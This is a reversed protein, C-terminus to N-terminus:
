LSNFYVADDLFSFSICETFEPLLMSVM